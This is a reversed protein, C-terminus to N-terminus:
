IILLILFIMVAAFGFIIWWITNKPPPHYASPQHIVPSPSPHSPTPIPTPKVLTVDFKYSSKDVCHIPDFYPSAVWWDDQIGAGFKEGNQAFCIEKGIHPTSDGDIGKLEGCFAFNMEDSIIENSCGTCHVKYTKSKNVYKKFADGVEPSTKRQAKITLTCQGNDCDSAINEDSYSDANILCSAGDELIKKPSYKTKSTFNKNKLIVQNDDTNGTIYGCRQM